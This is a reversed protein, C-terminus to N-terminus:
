AHYLLKGEKWQRVKERLRVYFSTKELRLMDHRQADLFFNLSTQRWKQRVRRMTKVETLFNTDLM